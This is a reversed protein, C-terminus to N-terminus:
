EINGVIETADKRPSAVSAADVTTDINGVRLLSVARYGEPIGLAQKMTNNVNNIPGTYIRSGLGLSQAALYMNQTALACDFDINIGSPNAEFGSIVIVINGDAINPIMMKCLEIDKVITFRWYQSNRASPAKIGCQIIRDVQDNTVPKTTFTRSSYSSLITDIAGHETTQCYAESIFVLCLSFTILILKKM